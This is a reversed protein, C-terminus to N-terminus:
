GENVVTTKNADVMNAADSLSNRRAAASWPRSPMTAL